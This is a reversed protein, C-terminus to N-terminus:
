SVRQRVRLTIYVTQVENGESDYTAPSSMVSNIIQFSYPYISHSMLIDNHKELNESFENLANEMKHAPVSLVVWEKPPEPRPEKEKRSFLM